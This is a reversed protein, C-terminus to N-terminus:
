RSAQNMKETIRISWANNRSGMVPNGVAYPPPHVVDKLLPARDSAYDDDSDYSPHPGIAKLIMAVLFSLGQVFVISLGIWKCLEFNSRVFGKFQDFSGSPDKPFDEEWDRNLVVDATVGAELMLLLFIFLMYQIWPTFDDDDEFFPFGGMEREWVRILWISYLVMAIGVMGILCNVLKLISQICSRMVSVM